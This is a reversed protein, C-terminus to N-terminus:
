RVMGFRRLNDRVQEQEIRGNFAAIELLRLVKEQEEQAKLEENLRKYHALAESLM